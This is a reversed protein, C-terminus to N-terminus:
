RGVSSIRLFHLGGKRFGGLEHERAKLFRGLISALVYQFDAKDQIGEQFGLFYSKQHEFTALIAGWFKRTKPGLHRKSAELLRGLAERSGGLLWGLAKLLCRFAKLFDGHLGWPPKSLSPQKMDMGSCKSVSGKARWRM